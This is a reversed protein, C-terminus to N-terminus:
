LLAAKVAEVFAAWEEEGIVKQVEEDLWLEGLLKLLEEADVEQVQDAEVQEPAPLRIAGGSEGGMAM